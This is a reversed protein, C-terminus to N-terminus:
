PRQMAERVRRSLERLTFPKQVFHVNEGPLDKLVVSATYGSMYLVQIGPRLKTIRDRLQRGNMVPMVVDTMLMDIPERFNECLALAERPGEAELVRYGLTQLMTKTMERVMAEDEVMLITGSGHVPASEDPPLDREQRGLYRPIYISFTTGKGPESYVHIHGGSQSVIGYVTALGLGTGKGIEKTTFFPEFIRAATEKDMGIGTDSVHLVVYGGPATGPHDHCYAEDLLVNTTELIFRGGQPMADRANVALNVLIQDIQSPDVHIMWLHDGPDFRLEIDEGILRALTKRTLNICENLDLPIPQVVQRRSFALLQRTIDRSHIGAKEIAAVDELLPDNEPLQSRIMETYGLIVTLMNNFDHAIGGALRGVSEMKQAQALQAELQNRMEEAWKQETVDKMTGLIRSPLGTEESFEVKGEARVWIYEGDKRRMRFESETARKMDGRLLALYSNEMRQRDDPHILELWNATSSDYEDSAYGLIGTYEPSVTSTGTHIDFDYMGLESAQLALRLREESDHLAKLTRNRETVDSCSGVIYAPSGDVNRVVSLTLEAEFPSGDSRVATIEGMWFGQERVVELIESMFTRSAFIDAVDRGLLMGPEPYAWMRLMAPNVYMLVGDPTAMGIATLCTEIASEKLRLANEAEKRETIDKAFSVSYRGGEFEMYNVSVEVPFESGDKRRHLSELTRSGGSARVGKRHERWRAYDFTPDIDMVTLGCLEERAYGLDECARRNVATIRATDEEIQYAALNAHELSFQTMRLERELRKRDTIDRIIAWYSEPKGDEDRLLITRLEVFIITGDKRIYEKEYVASYDRVMVQTELIEDEMRHWQPPTLDRFTLKGLEELSYGVLEEYARNAQLFRGDLDVSVFADRMSEHLRRFRAESQRLRDEAEKQQTIDRTVGYVRSGAPFSKWELYRYSGDRHLYRNVFGSVSTGAALAHAERLTSVVDDPHVLELYPKGILEEIPYGLAEEWANSLRRFRGQADSISLLELSHTFYNDLEETKQYLLEEAHKRETIELMIGDWVIRGDAQPVPRSMCDFWRIRGNEVRRLEERFPLLTRASRATAAGLRVADEPHLSSILCGADAMVASPDLGFVVQCSPSMYTFSRRGELDDEYRYVVGPINAELRLYREQEARLRTELTGCRTSLDHLRDLVGNVLLALPALSAPLLNVDARQEPDAALASELLRALSELAQREPLESEGRTSPIQGIGM